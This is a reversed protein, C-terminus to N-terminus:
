VCCLMEIKNPALDAMVFIRAPATTRKYANCPEDTATSLTEKVTKSWPTHQSPLLGGWFYFWSAWFFDHVCNGSNCKKLLFLNKVIEGALLRGEVWPRASDM